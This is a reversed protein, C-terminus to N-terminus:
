EPVVEEEATAAAAAVLIALRANEVESAVQSGLVALWESQGGGRLELTYLAAERRPASRPPVLFPALAWLVGRGEYRATVITRRGVRVNLGDLPLRAVVREFLVMGYRVRVEGAVDVVPRPRLAHAMVGLGPTLLLLGLAYEFPEWVRTAPFQWVWGALGAVTLVAGIALQVERPYTVRVRSADLLRVSVREATESIRIRGGSM